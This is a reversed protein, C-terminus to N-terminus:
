NFKRLNETKTIIGGSLGTIKLLALSRANDELKEVEALLGTFPGKSISIVDGQLVTGSPIYYGRTDIRAELEEMFKVPLPQPLGKQSVLRSVGITNNIKRWRERRVDFAVFLYGPFLPTAIDKFIAGRRKTVKLLPQCCIFGQRCLNIEAIRYRNAKVQVLYWSNKDM